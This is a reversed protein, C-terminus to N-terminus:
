LYVYGESNNFAGVNIQVYVKATYIRHVNSAAQSNGKDPRLKTGNLGSLHPDIICVCMCVGVCGCVWVCVYV